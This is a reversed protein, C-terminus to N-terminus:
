SLYRNYVFNAVITYLYLIVVSRIQQVLDIDESNWFYCELRLIIVALISGYITLCIIRMFSYVGMWLLWIGPMGVLIAGLTYGLLSAVVLCFLHIKERNSSTLFVIYENFPILILSYLYDVTAASVM